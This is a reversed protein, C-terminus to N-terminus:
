GAHASRTTEGDAHQVFELDNPLTVEGVHWPWAERDAIVTVDPALRLLSAPLYPTTEELLSGRLIDAKHGGSVLLLIKGSALIVDMGVTLARRPVESSSGWYRSNSALSEQSLDVVRTPASPESPPENFGLHGNPGLGLVALDLGRDLLTQGYVRCALALDPCEADFALVRSPSIGLPEVLARQMWGFLSRRDVRDIDVYEDLQAVSLQMADLMGTRAMQALVRYTGMPTDGTAALLTLKPERELEHAVFDAAARSLALYDDVVALKM